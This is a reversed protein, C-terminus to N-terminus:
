NLDNNLPFVNFNPRQKPKNERKEIKKECIIYSYQICRSIIQSESFCKLVCVCECEFIVQEFIYFLKNVYM